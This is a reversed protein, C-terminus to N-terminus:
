TRRSGKRRTSKNRKGSVAEAALFLAAPTAIKKSATLLANWLGGGHQAVPVMACSSCNGGTMNKSTMNKATINKVNPYRSNELTSNQSSVIGTNLRDAVINSPPSESPLSALLSSGNNLRSSNLKNLSTNINMSTNNMASEQEEQEEQEEQVGEATLSSNMKNKLNASSKTNNKYNPSITVGTNLIDELNIYSKTNNKYNPSITVGTNVSSNPKKSMSTNSNILALGEPTGATRVLTQMKNLNTYEPVVSSVEGASNKFNVATGNSNVLMLSPYGEIKNKSLSSNPLMDDRVRAIQVSRNSTNEIQSMLPKFKDCHGCWPAYVLVFTLPGSSIRKNLEGFMSPSTVDIPPMLSGM